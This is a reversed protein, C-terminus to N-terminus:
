KDNVIKNIYDRLNHKPKWGLNLTKDTILDAHLRNGGKKPTMEIEGNFMKAVELISFKDHHGIGFNDGFGKDGVLILASVIDEIHTFNRIQTGPSTVTLKKNNKSKETFIGILTAYKGSSIERGGYVNYFYTIAYKLGYWESYNKVLESNVYKSWSYPSSNKSSGGDGFKTSSGSYILKSSNIKCFNLVHYISSINLRNVLEIDDFSQEVRSYEGFHYVLDPAFKIKESIETSYGKIYTVNKVHNNESGTFYCDLSFVQNDKIKVLSECLHSGVFGAGGIVLIKVGKKM